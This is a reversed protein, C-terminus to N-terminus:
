SLALATAADLPENFFAAVTDAAGAIGEAEPFTRVVRPPTMDPAIIVTIEESWAFNGGTDVARARVIFNSQGSSLLPTLFRYEFPFSADSFVRTRNIYFEVDRVQVDDSVRASVSVLKGEEALGNTPTTLAFSSTLAITPPVGQNDFGRYNVVQLGANGDAVFALGAGIVVSSPQAPLNFRTLFSGTNAPDTVDVVDLANFAEGMPGRLYGVSVALGSGNAVIAQGEINPADVGSLLQLSNPDSLDATAFGGSRDVGGAVYAISGGIFLKGGGAPMTLSGLARMTGNSVSIARLVRSSDMTYLFLGEGAVGTIAGAGLPLRELFTGTLLDYSRLENGVAVYAVGSIIEVQSANAGLTQRLLPRMPDSVDVLHLGGTNAAVAVLKLTPDVAVDSSNGPLELQGLLIPMQFKSVNVIGLGRPGLALYATEQEANLTSGEIVVERAEGPLPLAAILGTPFGRGSLPDLGQQIEALDSLGDHDTDPDNPNTGLIFEADDQLGDADQDTSAPFMVVDPLDVDFGSDGVEFNARGVKGTVRDFVCLSYTNNNGIFSSPFAGQPSTKGRLIIQASGSDQIAFDFNREVLNLVAEVEGLAPGTLVDADAIQVHRNREANLCNYKQRWAAPDRGFLNDDIHVVDPVLQGKKNKARPAHRLSADNKVHDIFDRVPAPLNGSSLCASDCRNRFGPGWWVNFDIAHGVLHQSHGSPEFKAGPVYSPNERFTHTIVVLVDSDAAYGNIRHMANVFDEDIRIKRGYFEMMNSSQFEVINASGPDSCGNSGPNEVDSCTGGTTPSGPPTLGHWGPHTIGTGPDTRVFLGDESVTATGEIVLRGTTHDFSLFNLKTGSPANFVNPFTMPAPTSFTSVGMAQVTIDFTHQLLGPPLMGEVLEPPVVSVGVQASDLPQGDMGVLSGPQVEVTLYPQQEPPLNYAANSNLTIMTTNTASVTQLINSAVRPLYMTEMPILIGNTDRLVLGNTDQMFMVYNTIGPEFHTDMVMEPWYFGEHSTTATLGDTVVKVDGVPVPELRFNGNADTFVAHDEMGHLFVKVGAIPSLFVDDSTMPQGDPGPSFDDETMPQLDPGPDALRGVLVTGPIPVVSVTSFNARAVGGPEGDGDADLLTNVLTRITSGDVTVEIQSANPMPPDFFLWAFTGNSAPVIRAPLKQGAFSAFFNNSNLTSVDIPRPFTVKPRVTVGVESSGSAPVFTVPRSPLPLDLILDALLDVDSQTILGDGDLDAFPQQEIPLLGTSDPLTIGSSTQIHNILRVLDLVTAQGDEDLDGLKQPLALASHSALAGLFLVLLGLDKILKSRLWPQNSSKM